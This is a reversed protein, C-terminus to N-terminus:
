FHDLDLVQATTRTALRGQIWRRIIIIIIIFQKVVM